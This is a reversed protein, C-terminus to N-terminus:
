DLFSAVRREVADPIVEQGVTACDNISLSQVQLHDYSAFSRAQDRRKNVEFYGLSNEIILAITCTCSM